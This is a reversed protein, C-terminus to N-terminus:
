KSLIFCFIELLLCSTFRTTYYAIPSPIAKTPNFSTQQHIILIQTTDITHSSDQFFRIPTTEPPSRLLLVHHNFTSTRNILTGTPLAKLFLQQDKPIRYISPARLPSVYFVHQFWLEPIIAPFRNM